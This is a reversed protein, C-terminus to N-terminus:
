KRTRINEKSNQDPLPSSTSPFHLLLLSSTSQFHVNCDENIFEWSNGRTSPLSNSVPGRSFCATNRHQLNNTIWLQYVEDESRLTKSKKFYLHHKFNICNSISKLDKPGNLIYRSIQMALKSNNTFFQASNARRIIQYNLFPGWTKFNKIVNKEMIKLTLVMM